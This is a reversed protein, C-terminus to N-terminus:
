EIVLKKSVKNIKVAYTGKALSSVNISHQLKGLNLEQQILLKGNLDFIEIKSKALNLCEPLNLYIVESAPNPIINFECNEKTETTAVPMEFTKSATGSHDLEALKIVTALTAKVVNCMFPKNITSLNDSAEHYNKNRFNAGDTLMLAKINKDWFPAHDSRRLDPVITGTGQVTIPIVKLSPVYQAAASNFALVLDNSNTNGVNTIFNGKFTDQAVMNYAQPFLQSFGTPFSQTNKMESYFGIMEFNFVGEINSNTVNKAFAKSGLLGDEEMDFAIFQLSKKFSYKSLIRAAELVGVIGSGNDDAGPANSVTDYHADIIFSKQPSVKGNKVGIINKASYTGFSFPLEAANGLTQNFRSKLSDRVAQLHTANQARHRPKQALFVLDNYMKECDVQALIDNISPVKEDDAIIIFKVPNPLTIKSYDIIVEKNTGSSINKGADGSVTTILTMTKNSTDSVYVTVNMLDNEVDSLDYKLSFTKAASNNSGSINSVVPSKNQQAFLLTTWILFLLLFAKKM